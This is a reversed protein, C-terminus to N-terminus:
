ELDNCEGDHCFQVLIGAVGGKLLRTWAKAVDTVSNGPDETKENGKTHNGGAYRGVFTM